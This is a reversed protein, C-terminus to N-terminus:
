VSWVMAVGEGSLDFAMVLIEYVRRSDHVACVYGMGGYWNEQLGYIVGFSGCV